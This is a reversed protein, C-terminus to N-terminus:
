TDNKKRKFKIENGWYDWGKVKERAFLEIRPYDGILEVIRTRVESPKRSHQVKPAMIVQKIKTSKRRYEGRRGLLVYEANNLTYRGIGDERVRKMDNTMKIWVFPITLYKFGWAKIVDIGWSMKPGTCWCFLYCNKDAISVVDLAKIEELSLVSYHKSAAGHGVADNYKWPPDAYIIQYRKNPLLIMM